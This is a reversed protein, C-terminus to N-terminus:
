DWKTNQQRDQISQQILQRDQKRTIKNTDLLTQLFSTPVSGVPNGNYKCKGALALRDGVLQTPTRPLQRTNRPQYSKYFQREKAQTNSWDSKKAAQTKKTQKGLLAETDGKSLWQLFLGKCTVCVLKAYHSKKDPTPIAECQHSDHKSLNKNATIMCYVKKAM